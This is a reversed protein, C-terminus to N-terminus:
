TTSAKRDRRRRRLAACHGLPSREQGRFLTQCSKGAEQAARGSGELHILVPYVRLVEVYEAGLCSITSSKRPQSVCPSWGALFGRVLLYRAPKNIWSRHLCVISSYEWVDAEGWSLQQHQRRQTRDRANRTGVVSAIVISVKLMCCSHSGRTPLWPFTVPHSPDYGLKAAPSGVDKKFDTRSVFRAPLRLPLYGHCCTKRTSVEAVCM